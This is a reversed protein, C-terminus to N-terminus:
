AAVCPLGEGDVDHHHRAQEEERQGEESDALGRGQAIIGLTGRVGGRQGGGLLRTVVEPGPEVGREGPVGQVDEQARGESRGTVLRFPQRAGILGVHGVALRREAIQPVQDLDLDLVHGPPSM